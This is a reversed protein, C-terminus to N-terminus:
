DKGPGTAGCEYAVLSRGIGMARVLAALTHPVGKATLGGAMFMASTAQACNTDGGPVCGHKGAIAVIQPWLWEMDRCGLLSAFLLGAVDNRIICYDHIEKGGISEISVIDAHQACAEFSELVQRTRDSSRLHFMNPKRIDAITARYAVQLGYRARFDDIQRATQAAIEMGWRPDHTMQFVHENELVLAPHGVDVCRELVDGNAKEFERLLTELSRESGPRPHPVAEPIVQGGGIVLGRRTTVPHLSTGFMMEDSSAYAMATTLM